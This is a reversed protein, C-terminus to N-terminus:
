TYSVKVRMRLFPFFSVTNSFVANLYTDPNLLMYCSAPSSQVILRKM